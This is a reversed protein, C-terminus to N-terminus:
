REKNFTSDGFIILTPQSSSSFRSFLKIILPWFAGIALFEDHPVHKLEALEAITLLLNEKTQLELCSDRLSNLFVQTTSNIAFEDVGASVLSVKQRNIERRINTEM